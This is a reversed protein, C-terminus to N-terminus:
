EKAGVESLLADAETGAIEQGGGRRGFVPVCVGEAAGDKSVEARAPITPAGPPEQNKEPFMWGSGETDGTEENGLTGSNQGTPIIM